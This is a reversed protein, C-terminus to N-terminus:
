QALDQPTLRRPAAQGTQRIELALSTEDYLHKAGDAVIGLWIEVDHYGQTLTVEFQTRLSGKIKAFREEKSDMKQGDLYAHSYVEQKGKGGFDTPRTKGDPPLIRDMNISPFFTVRGPLQVQLRGRWRIWLNNDQYSLYRSDDKFRSARFLEKTDVMRVIPAETAAPLRGRDRMLFLGLEPGGGSAPTPQGPIVVGGLTPPQPQPQPTTSPPQNSIIVTTQQGKAVNSLVQGILGAALNVNTPTLVDKIADQLGVAVPPVPVSITPRFMRALRPGAVAAVVAVGVVVLVIKTQNKKLWGGGHNEICPDRDNPENARM